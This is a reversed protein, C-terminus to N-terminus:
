TMPIASVVWAYLSQPLAAMFTNRSTPPHSLLHSVQTTSHNGWVCLNTVCTYPRQAKLALQCKARNEDLRMLAHFNQRQLRPANEMCILANTNCPNGVVLVKCGKSAVENLAKGQADGSISVGCNTILM